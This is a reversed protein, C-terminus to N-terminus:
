HAIRLHGLVIYLGCQAHSYIPFHLIDYVETFGASAFDVLTRHMRTAAIIMVLLIPIQFLQSTSEFSFSLADDIVVFRVVHLQDIIHFPV